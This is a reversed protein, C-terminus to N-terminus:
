SMSLYHRSTISSIRARQQHTLDTESITQYPDDLGIETILEQFRDRLSDIETQDPTTLYQRQFNPITLLRTKQPQLQLGHNAYLTEALVFLSSYAARESTTFLRYDDNFRTFVIGHADLADDVDAITMEALLRAPASGVPIGHSETASWGSLLRELVRVHLRKKTASNLANVLRHQYIRPYFDAIDAVVVHSFQESDALDRCRALFAKYGIDPNFMQGDVTPEFRYSLVSQEELPRRAAEIDRGLEYVLGAFLLFDLPDLQTIVRLSLRSKPALLSRETRTTWHLLDQQSLYARVNGWDTRIAAYEFAPPFESTDGYNEASKLAWNLSRAKLRVGKQSM